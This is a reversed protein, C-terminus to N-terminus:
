FRWSASAVAGGPMPAAGVSPRATGSDGDSQTLVLIVGTIVAAGGVGYMVYGVTDYTKAKDVHAQAQTMTIGTVVDGDQSAGSVASRERSALASMVGGAVLAAAGTGIAVWPWPSKRVEAEKSVAEAPLPQHSTAPKPQVAVRSAPLPALTIEVTVTSDPGVEVMRVMKEYGAATVEVVHPGPPVVYPRDLPLTRLDQGNVTVRAGAPGGRVEIRGPLPLLSVSLRTEGGAEVEATRKAPAYGRLTVEVEHSGRKLEVATGAVVPRGDVTVAAGEPSVTVVLRGPMRDLLAELRARAKAIREPDTEAALWKEYYERAKALDGKQEYAKAMHGLLVPAPDLRYAKEFLELAQDPKGEDLLVAGARALSVAKDKASQARAARPGAVVLAVLVVALIRWWRADMM